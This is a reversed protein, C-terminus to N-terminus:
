FIESLDCDPSETLYERRTINANDIVAAAEGTWVCFGILAERRMQELGVFYYASVTGGDERNLESVQV